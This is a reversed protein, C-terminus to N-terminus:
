VPVDKEAANLLVRPDEELVAVKEIREDLGVKNESGALLQQVTEPQKGVLM